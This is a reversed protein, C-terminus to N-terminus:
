DQTSRTTSFIYPTVRDTTYEQMWRNRLILRENYTTTYSPGTVTASALVRGNRDTCTLEVKTAM